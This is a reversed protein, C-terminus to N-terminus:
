TAVVRCNFGQRVLEDYVSEQHAEDGCIVIVGYQEQYRDEPPTGGRGAGLADATDPPEQLRLIMADLDDGDYGTGSLGDADREAFETLLAILEPEDYTGLDSTRNDALLIRLAEEDSWPRRIVPVVGIPPLPVREALEEYSRHGEPLEIGRGALAQLGRWRHEGAVMVDHGGDKIQVLCAGFWGNRAISLAVAGVDGQRPNRPHPQVSDYPVLEIQQDLTPM